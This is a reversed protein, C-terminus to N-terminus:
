IKESTMIECCSIEFSSVSKSFILLNIFTQSNIKVLKKKWYDESNLPWNPEDKFLFRCIELKVIDNLAKATEPMRAQAITCYGTRVFM